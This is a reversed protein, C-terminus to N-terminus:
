TNLLWLKATRVMAPDKSVTRFAKQAEAKNNARLHAIGLLLGAEDPQTLQGKAIGAKLAEVAKAQDGYSLYAAGLKVYADGNAAAKADTEKKALAPKETAAASTARDRLRKFLDQTRADKVLNKAMAQDLVAQAEAPLGQDLAIQAMEKYQEPDKMVDVALALRMVNMKQEDSYDGRILSSTLNQWYEQKPYYSVLKEYIRTKCAQDGARECANLVIVLTNEPPKGGRQEISALVDSMVRQSNKNDGSQYYAQGLTVLLEPDRGGALGKNAYEIAKPYNKLNFYAGALAKYRETKDAATACPSSLVAEWEKAADAPQGLANYAYGDFEHMWFEDWASRTFGTVAKAEKTKALVDRWKKKQLAENAASMPKAIQKSMKGNPCGAGQAAFASGSAAVALAVFAIRISQRISM